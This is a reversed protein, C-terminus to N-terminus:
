QYHTLITSLHFYGSLSSPSLFPLPFFSCMWSPLFLLSFFNQLGYRFQPHFFAKPITRPNSPYIFIFPPFFPNKCCQEQVKLLIKHQMHSNKGGFITNSQSMVFLSPQMIVLTMIQVHIIATVMQMIDQIGWEFRWRSM